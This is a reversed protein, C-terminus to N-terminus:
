SVPGAPGVSQVGRGCHRKKAQTGGGQREASPHALSSQESGEPNPIHGASLAGPGVVSGGPSGTGRERSQSAMAAMPQTSGADREM